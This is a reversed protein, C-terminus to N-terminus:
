KQIQTSPVCTYETGNTFIWRATWKTKRKQIELEVVVFIEASWQIFKKLHDVKVFLSLLNYCICRPGWISWVQYLCLGVFFYLSVLLLSEFAIKTKGGRGRMGRSGWTWEPTLEKKRGWSDKSELGWPQGGSERSSKWDQRQWHM